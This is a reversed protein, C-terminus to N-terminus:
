SDIGLPDFTGLWAVLGLVALAAFLELSVSVRLRSVAARRASALQAQELAPVLAFRNLAALGLMGGSLALKILLLQGYLSHLLQQLDAMPVLFLLNAAGTLVLLAVIVSGALAFTGLAQVVQGSLLHANQLPGWLLAVFLGLAGVWSLAGLVHVIDGGLRIWGAVGQSAAAHGSWALTAVGVGGLLSLQAFRCRSRGVALGAFLALATSRAILAWGIATGTLLPLALNRDLEGLTIGAMTAVTLLFGLGGIAIGVLAAMALSRRWREIASRSGTIVAAMPVGFVIGFDAYLAWRVAPLAWDLTM